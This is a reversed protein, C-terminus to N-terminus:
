QDEFRDAFIDNTFEPCEVATDPTSQYAGGLIHYGFQPNASLRIEMCAYLRESDANYFYFGIFGREELFDTFDPGLSDDTVYLYPQIGNSTPGFDIGLETGPGVMDGPQFERTTWNGYYSDGNRLRAVYSAGGSYPRVTVYNFSAGANYYGEISLDFESGGDLDVFSPYFSFSGGGPTTENAQDSIPVIPKVEGQVASGALLAGVASAYHVLRTKSM